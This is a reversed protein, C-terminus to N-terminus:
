MLGFESDIGLLVMALFFVLLWFNPLPLLLLAKPLVNFALEMGSLNLKPDDIQLGELLCFHSLYIFITLASLLGAVVIGLPVYFVSKMIDDRRAKATALNFIQAYGLAVQYFVQTIADIWINYNWL